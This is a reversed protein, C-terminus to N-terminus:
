RRLFSWGFSIFNASYQHRTMDLLCIEITRLELVLFLRSYHKIREREYTTVMMSGDDVQVGSHFSYVDTKVPPLSVTIVIHIM